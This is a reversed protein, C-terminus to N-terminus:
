GLALPKRATGLGGQVGSGAPAGPGMCFPQAGPGAGSRSMGGSGGVAEEEEM